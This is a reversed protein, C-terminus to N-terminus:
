EVMAEPEELGRSAIPLAYDDRNEETEPRFQLQTDLDKQMTEACIKKLKKAIDELKRINDTDEMAKSMLKTKEDMTEEDAYKKASYMYRKKLTDDLSAFEEIKRNYNQDFFRHDILDLPKSPLSKEFDELEKEKARIKVRLDGIQQDIVKRKESLIYSRGQACFNWLLLHKKEMGKEDKFKQDQLRRLLKTCETDVLQRYAKYNIHQWLIRFLVINDLRDKYNDCFRILMRHYAPNNLSTGIITRISKQVDKLNMGCAQVDEKSVTDQLVELIKIFYKNSNEADQFKITTEGLSLTIYQYGQLLTNLGNLKTIPHASYLGNWARGYTKEMENVLNEEMSSQSSTAMMKNRDKNSVKKPNNRTNM